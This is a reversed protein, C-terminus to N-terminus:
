RFLVFRHWSFHFYYISDYTLIYPDGMYFDLMKTKFLYDYKSQLLDTEAKFLTNKANNYDYLISWSCTTRNQTYQFSEEQYAVSKKSAIYKKHRVLM